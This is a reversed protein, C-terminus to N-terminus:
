FPSPHPGHASHSSSDACPIDMKQETHNFVLSPCYLRVMNSLPSLNSSNFFFPRLCKPLFYVCVNSSWWVHSTTEAAPQHCQCVMFLIFFVQQWGLVVPTWLFQHLAKPSVRIVVLLVQAWVCAWICLDTIFRWCGLSRIEDQTQYSCSDGCILIKNVNQHGSSM